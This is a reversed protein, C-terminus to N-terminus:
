SRVEEVQGLVQEEGLFEMDKPKVDGLELLSKSIKSSM